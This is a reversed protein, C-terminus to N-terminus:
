MSRRWEIHEIIRDPVTFVINDDYSHTEENFAKEEPLINNDPLYFINSFGKVDSESIREDSIVNLHVYFLGTTDVITGALDLM